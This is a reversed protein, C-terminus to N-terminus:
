GGTRIGAMLYVECIALAETEGVGGVAQVRFPDGPETVDVWVEYQEVGYSNTRKQLEWGDQWLERATRRCGSYNKVPGGRARAVARDVETYKYM